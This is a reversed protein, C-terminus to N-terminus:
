TYDYVKQYEKNKAIEKGLIAWSRMTNKNFVLSNDTLKDGWYHIIVKLRKAKAIQLGAEYDGKNIVTRSIGRFPDVLEWLYGLWNKKPEYIKTPDPLEDHTFLDITDGPHANLAAYSLTHGDSVGGDYWEEIIGGAKRPKEGLTMAIPVNASYWIWDVFDEYTSDSLRFHVIERKTRSFCSVIVDKNLEKVKNYIEVTFHKRILKYLNKSEGISKKGLLLRFLSLGKRLTTKGKKTKYPLVSFISNDDVNTYINNLEKYKNTAVLPAMLAGTSVGYVKSYVRGLSQIRSQTGAGLAGGGQIVAIYAM